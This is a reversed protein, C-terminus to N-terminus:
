LSFSEAPIDLPHWEGTVDDKKYIEVMSTKEDESFVYEVSAKGAGKHYHAKKDLIKPRTERKVKIEGLESTFTLSEVVTEYKHGLDDENELVERDEKFDSFKEKGKEKLDAWADDTM